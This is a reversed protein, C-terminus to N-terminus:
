RTGASPSGNAARDGALMVMDARRFSRLGDPTANAIRKSMLTFESRELIHALELNMERILDFSLDNLRTRIVLSQFAM